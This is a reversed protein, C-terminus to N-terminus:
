VPQRMPLTTRCFQCCKAFKGMHHSENYGVRVVYKRENSKQPFSPTRTELDLLEDVVDVRAPFRRKDARALSLPFSVPLNSHSELCRTQAELFEGFVTPCYVHQTHFFFRLYLDIVWISTSFFLGHLGNFSKPIIRVSTCPSQPGM